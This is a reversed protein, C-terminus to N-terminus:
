NFELPMLVSQQSPINWQIRVHRSDDIVRVRRVAQRSLRQMPAGGDRTVIEGASVTSWVQEIRLPESPRQPEVPAPEPRPRDQRAAAPLKDGARDGSRHATGAGEPWPRWLVTVLLCVAVAAAATAVGVVRRRTRRAVVPPRLSAIRADLEPSPTRLPLRRLRDELQRAEDPNVNVNANM